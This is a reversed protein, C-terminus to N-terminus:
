HPSTLGALLVFGIRGHDSTREIIFQAVDPDTLSQEHQAPTWPLIFPASDPDREADLVFDIDDLTTRRLHVPETMAIGGACPVDEGLVSPALRALEIRSLM